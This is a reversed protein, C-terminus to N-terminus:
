AGWKQRAVAILVLIVPLVVIDNMGAEIKLTQRVSRPIRGDRLIERLVVPDTSALIAGGIFAMLWGFGVLLAM